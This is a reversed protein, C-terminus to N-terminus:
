YDFRITISFNYPNQTLTYKGTNTNTNGGGFGGTANASSFAYTAGIRSFEVQNFLNYFQLQLRANGSRTGMKVPFRRALTVDWNWWGPNRLGGYPFNGVNGIAGAGLTGGQSFATNLPLPRQLANV